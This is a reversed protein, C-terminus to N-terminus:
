FESALRLSAVFCVAFINYPEAEFQLWVRGSRWFLLFDYAFTMGCFNNLSSLVANDICWNEEVFM